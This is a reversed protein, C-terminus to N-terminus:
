KRIKNILWKRKAYLLTVIAPIALGLITGVITNMYDSPILEKFNATLKGNDQIKFSISNHFLNIGPLSISETTWKDFIQPPILSFTGFTVPPFIHNVKIACDLTTNIEYKKHENNEIDRGNCNLKGAETPNIYFTIGAILNNSTGNLVYVSNSIQNTTYIINNDTDITIGNLIDDYKGIIIPDIFTDTSANIVLIRGHIETTYITQTFYNIALNNSDSDGIVIEEKTLANISNIKSSIDYENIGAYYIKDTFPNYVISYPSYETTFNDTINNSITDITIIKKEKSSTVYIKNNFENITIGMAYNTDNQNDGLPIEKLFSNSLTDIVSVSNSCYNATYMRSNFDDLILEVPCKGVTIENVVKNTVGDIVSITNDRTNAVYIVNNYKDVAIAYPYKGVDVTSIIQDNSVDIVSITNSLINTVYLLDTKPNIALAYPSNRVKIGEYKIINEFNGNFSINNIFENLFSIEQFFYDKPSWYQIYYGIDNNKVIYAINNFVQSDEYYSFLVQYTNLGNLKINKLEHISFEDKKNFQFLYASLLDDLNYNYNFISIGLNAMNNNSSFMLNKIIGIDTNNSLLYWYEPYRMQISNDNLKIFNSHDNSQLITLSNLIDTLIPMNSNCQDYYTGLTIKYLYDITPILILHEVMSEKLIIIEYGKLPNNTDSTTNFEQYKLVKSNDFIKQFNKYSINTLNKTKIINFIISNDYYNSQILSVENASTKVKWSHPYYFGIGLDFNVYSKNEYNPYDSYNLFNNNKFIFKEICPEEGEAFVQLNNCILIFPTISFLFFTIIYKDTKQALFTLIHM